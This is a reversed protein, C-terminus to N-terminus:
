ESKQRAKRAIAAEIKSKNQIFVREMFGSVGRINKASARFNFTSCDGEQYCDAVKFDFETTFESDYLPDSLPIYIITPEHVNGEFISIVKHPIDEYEQTGAIPPFPMGQVRAWEEALLLQEVILEGHAGQKIVDASADIIVIVDSNREMLPPTPTNFDLGADVLALYKGPIPSDPLFQTFNFFTAPLIRMTKTANFSGSFLSPVYTTYTEIIKKLVNSIKNSEFSNTLGTIRMLDLSSLTYASGWTGMLNSLPVEPADDVSVIEDNVIKFNRNFGWLPVFAGAKQGDKGIYRTGVSWPTFEFWLMNSKTLKQRKIADSPMRSSLHTIATGIPLPFATIDGNIIHDQAQSFFLRQRSQVPYEHAAQYRNLIEPDDVAGLNLHAIFAGFLDTSDLMQNYYFKREFNEEIVSMAPFLCDETPVYRPQLYPYKNIVKRIDTNFPVKAYKIWTDILADIPIGLSRPAMTWTGGSLGAVYMIKGLLDIEEIGKIAGAAAIKARDGGGSLCLSIIPTNKLSLDKFVPDDMSTQLNKAISKKRIEVFNQEEPSAILSTSVKAITNKNKIYREEVQPMEPASFTNLEKKQSAIFDRSLSGKYTGIPINMTRTTDFGKNFVDFMYSMVNYARNKLGSLLRKSEELPNKAFYKVTSVTGEGMHKVAQVGKNTSNVVIQRTDKLVGELSSKVNQAMGQAWNSWSKPGAYLSYVGAIFLILYIGKKM